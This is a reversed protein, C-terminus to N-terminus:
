TSYVLPDSDTHTAVYSTKEKNMPLETILLFSNTKTSLEPFNSRFPLVSPGVTEHYVREYPLDLCQVSSDVERM